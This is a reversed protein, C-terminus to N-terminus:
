AMAAEMRARKRAVKASLRERQEILDSFTQQIHHHDTRKGAIVSEVLTRSKGTIAAVTSYDGKKAASKIQALSKM